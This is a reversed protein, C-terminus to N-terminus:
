PRKRSSGRNDPGRNKARRLGRSEAEQASSYVRLNWPKIEKIWDSGPLHFVDSLISGYVPAATPPGINKKLYEAIRKEIGPIQGFMHTGHFDGKVVDTQAQPACKRLAKMITKEKPDDAALMLIQRGRVRQLAAASDLGVDDTGPSLLVLADVSRDETAYLLAVDAGVGAGVLALRSRDIKPQQALWDYAARVDLRMSKFLEVDGNEVQSLTTRTASRGHGRLDLAVIAFGARHLPEILPEYETRDGRYMHLLIVAPVGGDNVKGPYYNAFITQEDSTTLTIRQPEVGFTRPVFLLVALCLLATIRRRTLM